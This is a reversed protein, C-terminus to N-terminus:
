SLAITPGFVEYHIREAPVNISILASYVAKMFPIPGCLYVNANKDPLWNNLIREDIFGQADGENGHELCLKYSSVSKSGCVEGVFLENSKDRVCQIFTAQTENPQTDLEKLM